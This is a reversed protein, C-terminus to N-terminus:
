LFREYRRRYKAISIIIVGFVVVICISPIIGALLIRRLSNESTTATTTTTTTTTIPTPTPTCPTEQESGEDCIYIRQVDSISQATLQSTLNHHHFASSTNTLQQYIRQLVSDASEIVSDFLFVQVTINALTRKSPMIMHIKIQNSYIHLASIFIFRLDNELQQFQTLYRNDISLSLTFRIYTNTEVIPIQVSESTSLTTTRSSVSTSQFTIENTSFMPSITTDKVMRNMEDAICDEFIENEFLAVSQILGGGLGVFQHNEAPWWGIRVDGLSTNYARSNRTTCIAPQFDRYTCLRANMSNYTICIQHFANDYLTDPGIFIPGDNFIDCMGSVRIHTSNSVILTFHTNCETNSSGIDVIINDINFTSVRFWACVSRSSDNSIHTNANVYTFYTTQQSSPM